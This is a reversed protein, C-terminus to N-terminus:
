ARPVDHVDRLFFRERLEALESSPTDNQLLFCFRPSKVLETPRVKSVCPMLSEVSELPSSALNPGLDIALGSEPFHKGVSSFPEQCKSRRVLPRLCIV